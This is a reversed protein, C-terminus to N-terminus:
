GLTVVNSNRAMIVTEPEEIVDYYGVEVNCTFDDPWEARFEHQPFLVRYGELVTEVLARATAAGRPTGADVLVTADAIDRHLKSDLLNMYERSVM